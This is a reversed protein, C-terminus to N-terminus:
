ASTLSWGIAIPIASFILASVDSATKKRNVVPIVARQNCLVKFKYADFIVFGDTQCQADCAVAEAYRPGQLM